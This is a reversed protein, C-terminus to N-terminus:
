IKQGDYVHYIICISSLTSSAPNLQNSFQRKRNGVLWSKEIKKDMMLM